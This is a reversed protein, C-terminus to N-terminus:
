EQVREEKEKFQNHLSDIWIRIVYWYLVISTIFLLGTSAIFLKSSTLLSLLGSLIGADCFLDILVLLILLLTIPIIIFNQPLRSYVNIRDKEKITRGFWRTPIIRPTKIKWKVEKEDEYPIILKVREKGYEILITAETAYTPLRFEAIGEVNTEIKQINVIREIVDDKELISITWKSLKKYISRLDSMSKDKLEKETWNTKGAEVILDIVEDKLKDRYGGVKFFEDCMDGECIGRLEPVKRKKLVDKTYHSSGLNVISEIIKDSFLEKDVDDCELKECLKQLTDLDITKLEGREFKQLNNDKLTEEGFKQREPPKLTLVAGKVPSIEAEGIQYNWSVTQVKLKMRHRSKHNKIVDDHAIAGHKLEVETEEKKTNVSTKCKEDKEYVQFIKFGRVDSDLSKLDGHVVSGTIKISKNIRNGFSIPINLSKPEFAFKIFDGAKKAVSDGAKEVTSFTKSYWPEFVIEFMENSVFCIKEWVMNKNFM